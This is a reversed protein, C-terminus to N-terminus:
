TIMKHHIQSIEVKDYIDPIPCMYSIDVTQRHHKNYSNCDVFVTHYVEGVTRVDSSYVTRSDNARHDARLTMGLVELRQRAVGHGSGTIYAPTRAVASGRNCSWTCSRLCPIFHPTLAAWFLISFAEFPCSIQFPGGTWCVAHHIPSGPGCVSKPVKQTDSTFLFIWCKAGTNVVKVAGIHKSTNFIESTFMKAPNIGYVMQWGIFVARIM